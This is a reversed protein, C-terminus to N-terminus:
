DKARAMKEFTETAESARPPDLVYRNAFEEADPFGSARVEQAALTYKFRSQMLKVEPGLLAWCAIGPGGEYAMGVSGANVLRWRDVTRDFQVHTHGCVVVGQEVGKLTPIVRDDPTIRTVIEEDSRATGHVFLTAGLGEIDQVLSMPWGALLDRQLDSLREAVWTQRRGWMENPAGSTASEVIARDTNGRIYRIPQRVAALRELAERPFPGAVVDGGIVVVDPAAAEVDALVADLARINGHIDYLAAVRMGPM